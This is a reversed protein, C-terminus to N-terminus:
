PAPSRFPRQAPQLADYAAQFGTDHLREVLDVTAAFAGGTEGCVWDAVAYPDLDPHHETLSYHHELFYEVDDVPVVSLPKLRLHVVRRGSPPLNPRRARWLAQAGETWAEAAAPDAAEVILSTVLLVGTREYTALFRTGLELWAELWAQRWGAPEQDRPCPALRWELSFILHEGPALEGSERDLGDEWDDRGCGILQAFRVLLEEADPIPGTALELRRVADRSGAERYHQYHHWVQKPLLDPHDDKTGAAVLGLVGRGQSLAAAVEDSAERRAAIRDLLLKILPRRFLRGRAAAIRSELGACGSWLRVRPGFAGFAIRQHGIGATDALFAQLWQTGAARARDSEGSAHVSCVLKRERVLSPPPAPVPEGILNLVILPVSEGLADALAGLDLDARAYAYLIEPEPTRRAAAALQGPEACRVLDAAFGQVRDLLQTLESGHRTAGPLQEDVLMLVPPEPSLVPAVRPRLGPPVSEFTWGCCKALPEGDAGTLHWPLRLPWPDCPAPGCSLEVAVALTHATAGAPLGWAQEALRPFLDEGDRGGLLLRYLRRGLRAQEATEPLTRDAESRLADLEARPISPAAAPVAQGGVRFVRSLGKDNASLEIHLIQRGQIQTPLAAAPREGVRAKLRKEADAALALLADRRTPEPVDALCGNRALAQIQHMDFSRTQGQWLYQFPKVPDYRDPRFHVSPRWYVPLLDLEGAQWREILYPLEKELIYEGGGKRRGFYGDSLILVAVAARDM